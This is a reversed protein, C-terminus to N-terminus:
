SATAIARSRGRLASRSTTGARADHHADAHLRAPDAARHACRRRGGGHYGARGGPNAPLRLRHRRDLLHLRHLHHPESRPLRLAHLDRQGAHRHHRDSHHLRQVTEPPRHLLAPIARRHIGPQRRRLRRHRRDAATGRASMSQADIGADDLAERVRRSGAARRALRAAPGEIEVYQKRRIRSSRAPSRCPTLRIPRLPHHAACRKGM